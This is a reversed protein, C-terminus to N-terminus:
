RKNEYIYESAERLFERGEAKALKLAETESLARIIKKRVEKVVASRNGTFDVDEIRDGIERVIEETQKPSDVFDNFKELVLRYVAHEAETFGLEKQEEELRDIEKEVEEFKELAEESSLGEQRWEQIVERVRESLRPYSPNEPQKVEINKELQAGEAAAKYEPEVDSVEETKVEPESIEYEIEEGKQVELGINDELIQKTKERVEEGIEGGPEEGRQVKRFRDYIQTVISWKRDVEEAGLKEHPAVSEYLKEAEMYKELFDSALDEDRRLRAIIKQFEESSGDFEVDEFMGMLEELVELFKEALEDTNKAVSEVFEFDYDLAEEPNEFIGSYDVIEGNNKGEAPRNTRAIAQLLNHDRLEKDLYLTTLIPADFGTLLKDCVVLLKPNEGVEKFQEVLKREEENSRHYKQMEAPDDSGSSIVADVESEDRYKRFEDCYLAAARRSPTVVMGKFGNPEVKKEFHDLIDSVVEEIRPRLEALEAQNVYERLIERRKKLPLDGFEGEFDRDLAEDPIDWDVERVDFTVETIVGDRQGDTISYRHLYEEGEPSFEQFTNRDEPSNGEAVPTGTLGFYFAEPLAAKLKSGLKGETFRHAEDVLIVPEKEVDIEIDTDIDEFKQITTLVLQDKSEGLIRELGRISDAVEFLPFDIDHLTESMQEELKSRDVILLYQTDDVQPHKKAKYATFMMTFSKGSGQTHWILGSKKEGREIRNIMRNAAQYQMYRPIIKADEGFFVFYRFIDMLTSPNLADKTADRPEFGTDEEPRWPFYFERGAGVAAYRFKAGDCAVNFLSPVFMRSAEEEYSKLDSIADFVTAGQATSKLEAHVVPIGNVFLSVDPRVREERAVEFQNAAIFSNNELLYGEDTEDEPLDVLKIYRSTEEGDERVTHSVGEKMLRYFEENGDLLKESGLQRKLKEIVENAVEDGVDNIEKVKQKLLQWYIVEEPQRGYKKDLQKAGWKNTDPEGYVEWGVEELWDMFDQEVGYEGFKKM